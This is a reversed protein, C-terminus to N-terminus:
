LEDKTNANSSAGGAEDGVGNGNKALTETIARMLSTAPDLARIDNIFNDQGVEWIMVGGLNQSRAFDTKRQIMDKGNFYRNGIQDVGPKLGAKPAHRKVLDKKQHIVNCYMPTPSPLFTCLAVTECHM